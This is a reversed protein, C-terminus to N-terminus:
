GTGPILKLIVGDLRCAPHDEKDHVRVHPGHSHGEGGVHGAHDLQEEGRGDVPQAQDEDGEGRQERVNRVFHTLPHASSSLLKSRYMFYLCLLPQKPSETKLVPWYIIVDIYTCQM